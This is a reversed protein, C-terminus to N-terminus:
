IILSSPRPKLLNPVCPSAPAINRGIQQHKRNNFLTRPTRNPDAAHERTLTVPLLECIIARWSARRMTMCM